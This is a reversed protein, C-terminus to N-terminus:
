SLPMSARYLRVVQPLLVVTTEDVAKQFTAVSSGRYETEARVQLRQSKYTRLAMLREPTLQGLSPPAPPLKEVPPGQPTDAGEAPTDPASTTNESAPTDAMASGSLLLALIWTTM